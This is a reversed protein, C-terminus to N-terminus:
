RNNIVCLANPKGTKFALQLGPRSRLWRGALNAAIRPESSYDGAARAFRYQGM